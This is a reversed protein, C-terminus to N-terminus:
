KHHLDYHCRIALLHPYSTYALKTPCLLPYTGHTIQTTDVDEMTVHYIRNVRPILFINKTELKFIVEKCFCLYTVGDIITKIEVSEGTYKTIKESGIFYLYIKLLVNVILDKMLDM